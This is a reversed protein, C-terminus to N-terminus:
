ELTWMRHRRKTCANNNNNNNNDDDNNSHKHTKKEETNQLTEVNGSYTEEESINPTTWQEIWVFCINEPFKMKLRTNYFIICPITDPVYVKM